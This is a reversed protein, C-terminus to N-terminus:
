IFRVLLTIDNKEKKFNYKEADLIKKMQQQMKYNIKKNHFQITTKISKTPEFIKVYNNVKYWAKCLKWPFQQIVDIKVTANGFSLYTDFFQIFTQSSNLLLHIIKYRIWWYIEM